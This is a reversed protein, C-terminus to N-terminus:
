KVGIISMLFQLKENVEVLDSLDKSSPPPEVGTFVYLAKLEEISSSHTAAKYGM